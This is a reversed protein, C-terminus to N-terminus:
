RRERALWSESEGVSISEAATGADIRAISAVVLLFLMWIFMGTAHDPSNWKM